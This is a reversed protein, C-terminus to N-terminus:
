PVREDLQTLVLPWAAEAGDRLAETPFGAHSLGLLTGGDSPRLEVTLM